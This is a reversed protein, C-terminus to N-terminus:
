VSVYKFVLQQTIIVFLAMIVEENGLASRLVPVLSDAASDQRISIGFPVQTGPIACNAIVIFLLTQGCM